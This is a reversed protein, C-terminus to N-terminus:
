SGALGRHGLDLGPGANPSAGEVMSRLTGVRRKIWDFVIYYNTGLCFHRVGLEIFRAADEPLNVEARAAVGSRLVTVYVHHEVRLLDPHRWEGPPGVSMACDGPGWQIMDVGPVAMIDEIQEVASGKEIMLVVVVDGLAQAFDASGAQGLYTNRLGVVGLSGGGPVDPRVAAVCARADRASRV